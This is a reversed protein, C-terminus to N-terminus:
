KFNYHRTLFLRCCHFLSNFSFRHFLVLNARLPVPVPLSPEEEVPDGGGGDGGGGGECDGVRNWACEACRGSSVCTCLNSGLFRSYKGGQLIQKVSINKNGKMEMCTNVNLLVFIHLSFISVLLKLKFCLKKRLTYFLMFMTWNPWVLECVWALTNNTTFYFMLKNTGTGGVWGFVWGFEDM